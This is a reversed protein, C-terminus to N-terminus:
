TKAMECLDIVVLRRTQEVTAFAGLCGNPSVAQIAFPGYLVKRMRGKQIRYIGADPDDTGHFNKSGMVAAFYADRAPILTIGWLNGTFVDTRIVNGDQLIKWISYSTRGLMDASLGPCAWTIFSREWSSSTTCAPRIDTPFQKLPVEKLSPWRLLRVENYLFKERVLPGFDLAYDRHYSITWARGKLQPGDFAWRRSFKDCRKGAVRSSFMWNGISDHVIVIEDRSAEQGLPGVMVKTVPRVVEKSPEAVTTISYHIRGESACLYIYPVTKSSTPWVDPRYVKPQGGLTWVYIRASLGSFESSSSSGVFVLTKDDLWHVTEENGSVAVSWEDSRTAPPTVQGTSPSSAVLPLILMGALGLYKRPSM